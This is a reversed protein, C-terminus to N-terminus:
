YRKDPRPALRIRGNCTKIRWIHGPRDPDSIEFLFESVDWSDMEDVVGNLGIIRKITGRRHKSIWAGTAMNIEATSEAFDGVRLPRVLPAAKFDVFGAVPLYEADQDFFWELYDPSLEDLDAQVVGDERRMRRHPPRTLPSGSADRIALTPFLTNRRVCVDLHAGEPLPPADAIGFLYRRALQDEYLGVFGAGDASALPVQTRLEPIGDRGTQYPTGRPFIVRSSADGDGAWLVDWLAIQELTDQQGFAALGRAVDTIAQEVGAGRATERPDYNLIEVDPDLHSFIARMREQVGPILSSGGTMFVWQVEDTKLGGREVTDCVAEEIKELIPRIALEFDNRLVDFPTTPLRASVATSLERKCAEVADAQTYSPMRNLAAAIQDDLRLRAMFADDMAKGAVDSSGGAALERVPVAPAGDRAEFEILSLDLTGGGHDFILVRDRGHIRMDERAAVASIAVPELAFRARELVEKHKHRFLPTGDSRQAEALACILRKRACSSFTVPMGLWIESDEAAGAEYAREILRGLILATAGILEGRTHEGGRTRWEIVPELLDTQNVWDYGARRWVTTRYREQLRQHDLYAKFYAMYKGSRRAEHEARAELGIRHQEAEPEFVITALM